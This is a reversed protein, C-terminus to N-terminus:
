TVLYASHSLWRKDPYYAFILTNKKITDILPKALGVSVAPCGWSRGLQGYQRIVDPNAYWAGHFVIARSYANDNVGSELGKIRLSYGKGGFYPEATLFVGISSKLSGHSNSFSTARTEGSNKGHAVWTNFLTKGHKMDFVWLRRESSPKSYDIVTLVQKDDFGHKRANRYAILGLRLVKPDINFAQSKIIAVQRTLWADSGVKETHEDPSYFIWSFPWSFGVLGLFVLFVFFLLIIRHFRM